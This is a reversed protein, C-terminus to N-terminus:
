AGEVARKALAEAHMELGRRVREFSVLATAWGRFSERTVYRVRGSPLETLTQLRLERVMGLTAPLGEFAYELSAGRVGDPGRSPPDCRTIRETAFAGGRDHWRVEVRFRCGVELAGRIDFVRVLYPNWEHYRELDTMVAWIRGISAGIEVTTELTHISM